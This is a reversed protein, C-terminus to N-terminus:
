WLFFLVELFRVISFIIESGVSFPYLRTVRRFPSWLICHWYIHAWSTLLAICFQLYLVVLGEYSCTREYFKSITFHIVFGKFLKM